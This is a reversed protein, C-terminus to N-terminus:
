TVKCHSPMENGPSDWAPNAATGFNLPHYVVLNIFCTPLVHPETKSHPTVKFNRPGSLSPRPTGPQLSEHAMEPIASSQSFCPMVHEAGHETHSLLWNNPPRKLLLM